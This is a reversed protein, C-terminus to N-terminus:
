QNLEAILAEREKLLERFKEVNNYINLEEARMANQKIFSAYEFLRKELTDLESSGKISTLGDCINALDYVVNKCSKDCKSALDEFYNELGEVSFLEPVKQPNDKIWKRNLCTFIALIIFVASILIMPVFVWVVLINKAFFLMITTILFIIVLYPYVFTAIPSIGGLKTNRELLGIVLWVLFAFMMCGYIVWFSTEKLTEKAFQNFLLFLVANYVAVIVIWLLLFYKKFISKM